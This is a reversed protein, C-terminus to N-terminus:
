LGYARCHPRYGRPRDVSQGAIIAEVASAIFSFAAVFALIWGIAGRMLGGQRDVLGLIASALFVLGMLSYSFTPILGIGNKIAALLFRPPAGKGSTPPLCRASDYHAPLILLRKGGSAALRRKWREVEGQRLVSGDEGGALSSVIGSASDANPVFLSFIGWGGKGAM